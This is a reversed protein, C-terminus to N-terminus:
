LDERSNPNMGDRLVPWGLGAPTTMLNQHHTGHGPKLTGCDSPVERPRPEAIAPWGLGRGAEVSPNRDSSGMVAGM